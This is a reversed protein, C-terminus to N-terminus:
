TTYLVRRKKVSVVSSDLTIANKFITASRAIIQLCLKAIACAHTYYVRDGQWDCVNTVSSLVRSM